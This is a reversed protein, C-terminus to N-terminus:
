ESLQVVIDDFSRSPPACWDLQVAEMGAGIVTGHVYRNVNTRPLRENAEAGRTQVLECDSIAEALATQTLQKAAASVRPQIIYYQCQRNTICLYLFIKDGKLLLMDLCIALCLNDM